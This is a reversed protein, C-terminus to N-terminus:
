PGSVVALTVTSSYTGAYTNAPIAISVSPTIKFQGLGTNAAANFFKIATPATCAAPITKPYTIANTPDTYTGTGNEVMAVGSIQSATTALNHGTTTCDGTSFQTSTITLNWGSGTGTNDNVAIDMTYTSTKNTGDLTVASGQVTTPGSETVNATGTVAVTASPGDAFAAVSGGIALVLIVLFGLYFRLSRSKLFHM